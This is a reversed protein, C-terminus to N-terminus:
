LPPILQSYDNSQSSFRISHFLFRISEMERQYKIGVQRLDYLVIVISEQALKAIM